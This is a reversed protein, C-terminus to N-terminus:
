TPKKTLVWVLLGGRLVHQRRISEWILLILFKMLSYYTEKETKIIRRKQHSGKLAKGRETKIGKRLV